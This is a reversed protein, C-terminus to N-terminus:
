KAGPDVWGINGDARRYVVNLEGHSTNKFFLFPADSVDMKMVADGVSMELLKTTDEAIIPPSLDNEEESENSSIVFSSAEFSPLAQSSAHHHDKLRRKYRRLRKSLKDAATDFCAYADTLEAHSQLSMGTQLHVLCDARFSDGQKTITVQCESSGSFYKAVDGEIRDTIHARLADGIDIGKGSVQIQMRNRDKIKINLHSNNYLM